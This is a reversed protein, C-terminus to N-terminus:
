CNRQWRRTQLAAAAAIGVGSSRLFFPRSSGTFLRAAGGDFLSSCRHVVVLLRNFIDVDRALADKAAAVKVDGGLVAFIVSRCACRRRAASWGTDRSACHAADDEAGVHALGLAFHFGSSLRCTTASRRDSSSPWGTLIALSTTPSLACASAAARLSPSTMSSSFVRKSFPSVLFSGSSELFSAEM